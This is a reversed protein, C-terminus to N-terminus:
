RLFAKLSVAPLIYQAHLLCAFRPICESWTEESQLKKFLSGLWQLGNTINSVLNETLVAIVAVRSFIILIHDDITALPIHFVNFKNVYLKKFSFIHIM